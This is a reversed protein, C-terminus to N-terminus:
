ANRERAREARERRLRQLESEVVPEPVNTIVGKATRGAPTLGLATLAALLKPGLDSAASHAALEAKVKDFQAQCDGASIEAEALADLGRQVAAISKALAATPQAADILEAYRRALQAAGADKESIEASELSKNVNQWMVGRYPM